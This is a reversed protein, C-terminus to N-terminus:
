RVRAEEAIRLAMAAVELALREVAGIDTIARADCLEVLKAHKRKLSTALTRPTAQERPWTLRSRMVEAEVADITLGDLMSGRFAAPAEPGDVLARASM